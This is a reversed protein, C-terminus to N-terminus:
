RVTRRLSEEALAFLRAVDALTTRPDNNFDMLRHNVVRDPWESSIVRRVAQMAPQRHQYAGMEARTVNALACYLSILSTDNECNRDDSRDWADNSTLLEAAARLISLDKASPPAEASEDWSLTLGHESLTLDTILHWAFSRLMLRPGTSYQYTSIEVPRTLDGDSLTGLWVVDTAGVPREMVLGWAWSDATCEGAFSGSPLPDLRCTVVQAEISSAVGFCVGLTAVGWVVRKVVKSHM